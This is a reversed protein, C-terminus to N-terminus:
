SSALNHTCQLGVTTEIVMFFSDFFTSFIVCVTVTKSIM